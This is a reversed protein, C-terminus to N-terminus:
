KYTHNEERKTPCNPSQRKGLGGEDDEEKKEERVKM